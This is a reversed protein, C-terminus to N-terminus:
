YGCRPFIDEALKWLLARSAETSIPFMTAVSLNLGDGSCYASPKPSKLGSANTLQSKLIKERKLVMLWFYKCIQSITVLCVQGPVPNETECPVEHKWHKEWKLRIFETKRYNCYMEYLTWIEKFQKLNKFFFWVKFNELVPWFTREQIKKKKQAKGTKRKRQNVDVYCIKWLIENKM